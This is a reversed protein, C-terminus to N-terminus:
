FFDQQSALERDWNNYLDKMKRYFQKDDDNLVLEDSNNVDRYLSVLESLEEKTIYIQIKDV